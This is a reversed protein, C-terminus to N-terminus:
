PPSQPLNSPQSFTKFYSQLSTQWMLQSKRECIIERYCATSNSLVKGETSIREFNFDTRELGPAAKDALNIDYELGKTTMEATKVAGEAPTFEIELFSKSQKDMLLLEEHSQLLEIM